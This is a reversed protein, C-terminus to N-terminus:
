GYGELDDTGMLFTGAPILMMGRRAHTADSRARPRSRTPTETSGTPACCRM